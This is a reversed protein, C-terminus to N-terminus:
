AGRQGRRKRVTRKKATKAAEVKAEKDAGDAEELDDELDDAGIEIVRQQLTNWADMRVGPHKKQYQRKIVQYPNVILVYNFPGSSGSKTKIFGMEELLHMRAAWTAEARQGGFGATFAHERPKTVIVFSDDWTHCWLDLYMKSVPKGNSMDDMILMILPMARPITEFGVKQLRHWLHHQDLDPWLTARLKTRTEKTKKIRPRRAM